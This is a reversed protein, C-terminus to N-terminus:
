APPASARLKARLADIPALGRDTKIHWFTWGNCAPAQDLMAGLKHISGTLEGAALSGDPRVSARRVGKPCYLEDGPRLLGAELIQGFPIRPEARKSGTAMLDEPSAPVVAAIPVLAFETATTPGVLAALSLCAAAIHVSYGFRDSARQREFLPEIREPYQRTVFLM